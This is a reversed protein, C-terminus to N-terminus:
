CRLRIISALHAHPSTIPRLPHADHGSDTRRGPSGATRTRRGDAGSGSGLRGEVRALDPGPPSAVRNRGRAQPVRVGDAERHTGADALTAAMRPPPSAAALLLLITLFVSPRPRM